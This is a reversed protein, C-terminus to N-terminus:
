GRYKFLNLAYFVAEKMKFHCSQSSITRFIDCISLFGLFHQSRYHMVEKEAIKSYVYVSFLRYKQTEM